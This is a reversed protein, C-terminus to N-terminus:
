FSVKVAGIIVVANNENPCAPFIHIVIGTDGFLKGKGCMKSDVSLIIQISWQLKDKHIQHCKFFSEDM